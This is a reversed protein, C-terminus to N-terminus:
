RQGVPVRAAPVKSSTHSETLRLVHDRDVGLEAVLAAEEAGPRIAAIEGGDRVVIVQDELIEISGYTPTHVLAGRVVLM